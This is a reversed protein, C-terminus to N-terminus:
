APSGENPPANRSGLLFEGVTSEQYYDTGAARAFLDADGTGLACPALGMATAALYMTQYLVGVHKLVLAYAMSEYKWAVRPFRAALALLVQVGDPPLAASAAADGLLRRVEATPGRRLSLGHRLPDYRYLGPALGACAQVVAYLELEYLAGGAPYPRHAFDMRVPGQPTTVDASHTATVRGVRDLFEGLQGVTMPRTGFARVSRRQGVVRALPPDDRELRERDPRDLAVFQGPEAPPLAPPPEHRGALRYTGGFLADSRGRRSRAHFLLDHFEWTRLAPDDDEADAGDPGVAEILGASALLDLLPPVAEAPPGGPCGALDRATAPSALRAVLAATRGDDLVVRAFSRPSELVLAGGDRHLYAFRSLRYPRDAVAGPPKLDGGAAMPLLTALPRGEALVARRILGRGALRRLLDYWAALAVPGGGDLMADALRDEDAGPPALRGLAAAVAPASSQMVLRVSPGRVIVAGAADAEAAIGDRWSLWLSAAM